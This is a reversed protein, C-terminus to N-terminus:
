HTIEYAATLKRAAVDFEFHYTMRPNLSRDFAITTPGSWALGSIPRNPFPAEIRYLQGSGTEEVLIFSLDGGGQAKTTAVSARLTKSQNEVKNGSVAKQFSGDSLKVEPAFDAKADAGKKHQHAASAGQEGAWPSGIASFLLVMVFGMIALPVTKM